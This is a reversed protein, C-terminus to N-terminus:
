ILGVAKLAEGRDTYSRVRSIRDGRFEWIMAIPADVPVGSARGRAEQRGLMLVRDGLDRFEDAYVRYYAFIDQVEGLVTEVGELGQYSDRELAHPLSPSWEFDPTYLANYVDPGQRDRRNFADIAWKVLEVNQESV